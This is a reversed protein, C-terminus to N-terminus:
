LCRSVTPPQCNKKKGSYLSSNGWKPFSPATMHIVIYIRKFVFNVNFVGPLIFDFHQFKINYYNCLFIHLLLKQTIMAM